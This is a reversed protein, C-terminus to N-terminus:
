GVGDYLDGRRAAREARGCDDLGDRIAFAINGYFSRMGSRGQLRDVNGGTFRDGIGVNRGASLVRKRKPKWQDAALPHENALMATIGIAIRRDRAGVRNGNRHRVRLDHLGDPRMRRPDLHRADDGSRPQVEQHIVLEARSGYVTQGGFARDGDGAVDRRPEGSVAEFGRADIAGGVASYGESHLEEARARWVEDPTAPLTLEREIRDSM